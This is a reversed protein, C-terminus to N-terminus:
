EGDNQPNGLRQGIIAGRLCEGMFICPRPYSSWDITKAVQELLILSQYHYAQPSAFEPLDLEFSAGEGDELSTRPGTSTLYVAGLEGLFPKLKAVGVFLEANIPVQRTDKIKDLLGAIHDRPWLSGEVLATRLWRKEGFWFSISNKTVQVRTPEENIRLLEEIAVAPIVVDLPIQTGHWYQALMINNTAYMSQGSLLIGMAWPRSADIGMLPAMMKIGSLFNPGLEVEEGEPEVFYQPEDDICNVFSKFKGSKVALRGNPTMNLSITEAPCSKIAALLDSARPCCNLDVDIDSSLGFIGNFGTVREDKIRYHNLAPVYDKKAVAAAVFRLADLM